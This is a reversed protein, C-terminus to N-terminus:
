RARTLIREVARADVEFQEGLKWDRAAWRRWVESAQELTIGYDSLHLKNDYMQLFFAEIKDICANALVETEQAQLGFVRQACQALKREKHDIQDRLLQPLVIALTLGHDLGFLATLEHGIRHTSWDEPVGMALTGNLGFLACMALDNRLDLDHSDDSLLKPGIELLTQLVSESLRDQLPAECPYTMYQEMVHVFADVVGNALQRKPLSFTFAPNIVSFKPFLVDNGISYKEKTDLRSIVAGSNMESGTASLTLVTGFPLVPQYVCDGHYRVVDWKDEGPYAQAAVIFKTGDIVSGGGVALLFDVEEQEIVPLAEILREYKPNATIGGFLVVKRPKLHAKVQDLTGNKLVSGGGYTVMVTAHAPILENLDELSRSGFLIRVPNYFQFDFM